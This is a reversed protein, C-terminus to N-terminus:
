TGTNPNDHNHHHHETEDDLVPKAASEFFIGLDRQPKGACLNGATHQLGMPDPVDLNHRYLAFERVVIIGGGFGHIQALIHVIALRHRRSGYGRVFASVHYLM